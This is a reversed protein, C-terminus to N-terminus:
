NTKCPLTDGQEAIFDKYYDLAKELLKRRIPRLEPRDPIDEESVQTFFNLVQRAKYAAEESRNREAAELKYAADTKKQETALLDYARAILVTSVTLGCVTLLLLGVAAAV